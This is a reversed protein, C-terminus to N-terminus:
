KQGVFAQNITFIKINKKTKKKAIDYIANFNLFELFFIQFFANIM